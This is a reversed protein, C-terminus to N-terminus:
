KGKALKQIDSVSFDDMRSILRNTLVLALDQEARVTGLKLEEQQLKEYLYLPMFGFRGRQAPILKMNALRTKMIKLNDQHSYARAVEPFQKEFYGIAKQPNATAFV